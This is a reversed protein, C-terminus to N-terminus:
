LYLEENDKGQPYNDLFVSVAHPLLIPRGQQFRQDVFIVTALVARALKDTTEEQLKMPATNVRIFPSIGLM